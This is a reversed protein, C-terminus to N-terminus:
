TRVVTAERTGSTTGRGRLALLAVITSVLGLALGAGGLITATRATSQAAAIQTAAENATPVKAPFQLESIPQVSNFGDPSSTFKEDVTTGEIEGMFRFTYDGSSTPYFDATYVGKEGWAPKLTMDRQQDGFIVQAKLTEALNEVPRSTAKETIQVWVGNQEGEFAPENMFGVVFEYKGVDRHEHASAVLPM